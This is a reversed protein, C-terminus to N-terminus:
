YDNIDLLWVKSFKKKYILKKTLFNKKLTHSILLFPLFGFLLFNKFFIRRKKKFKM